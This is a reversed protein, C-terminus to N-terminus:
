KEWANKARKEFKKTAKGTPISEVVNQGTPSEPLRRKKGQSTRERISDAIALFDDLCLEPERSYNKLAVLVENIARHGWPRHDNIQLLERTHSVVSQDKIEYLNEIERLAEKQATM